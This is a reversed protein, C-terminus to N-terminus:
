QGASKSSLFEARIKELPEAREPKMQFFHYGFKRLDAGLMESLRAESFRRNILYDDDLSQILEPLAWRANAKALAEAAVLRTSEHPSKLWGTGVPEKRHPYSATLKEESYPGAKKPYWQKLYSLTWDINEKLHCLNCANPQNAEIMRPETPSFITHTRVVDQLGETIKPMHCNMCHNGESDAPHHTHALRIPPDNFQKHCEMCKADDEDAPRQWKRGIGQHPSHCHVCTLAPMSLKQTVSKLYCSGQTADSYEVSNWVAMGAAFLPRGGSHCRACTWNLNHPKRGWAESRTSAHVSIEPSAPFFLPNLSGKDPTSNEAHAKAGNHCAECSIGLVVAHDAVPKDNIERFSDTMQQDRSRGSATVKDFIDPHARHLYKSAVFDFGFPAFYQARPIGTFSMLWDGSPWTTHCVSCSRDYAIDTAAAFPDERKGDPLEADIHIIPMWQRREILYGLPLVHDVRRVLADAPEPGEVLKGVYYQFFRSGITRFVAYRRVVKDRELRMFNTGNENFFRAEGGLYKMVTGTFDGRVNEPTAMANMLRHAHTRWKDYNSAHCKKCSEPGAYDSKSINSRPGNRSGRSLLNGGPDGWWYHVRAQEAPGFFLELAEASAPDLASKPARVSLTNGAASGQREGGSTPIEAAHLPARSLGSAVLLLVSLFWSPFCFFNSDGGNSRRLQRSISHNL